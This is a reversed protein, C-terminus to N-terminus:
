LLFRRIGPSGGPVIAQVAKIRSQKRKENQAINKM